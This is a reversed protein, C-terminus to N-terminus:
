LKRTEVGIVPEASTSGAEIKHVTLRLGNAAVVRVQQGSPISGNDSTAQWLEGEVFIVGDPSLDSRTVAVRGVINEKGTAPKYRRAQLVKVVAFFFFSGLGAATGFVVAPSVAPLGPADATNILILGGVVLSAIGGATLIGHSTMFVDAIFLIFALVLFVAGAWNIPLTGLGLFGILLCIAGVVGPFVAGPNIFEWTIGLTGISILLFAVSPDTILFLLDEGLTPELTRIAAGKTHLTVNTNAAGVQVTRGDAQTLLDEVGTALIDVVHQDVAAQAGINESQTVAKVGFDVNRGRQNALNTIQSVLLNTVKRREAAADGSEPTAGSTSSDDGANLIVEASGITTNPAMAAVHSSYVLFVGASASMAGQPSIYTIIPVTSALTRQVMTQMSAVLGGPTDIEFVLAAAGDREATEIARDYYESTVPTIPLKFKAVYVFGSPQALSSAHTSRPVFAGLLLLVLGLALSGLYTARMFTIFRSVKGM